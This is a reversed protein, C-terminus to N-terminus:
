NKFRTLVLLNNQKQGNQWAVIAQELASKLKLLTKRKNINMKVGDLKESYVLLNQNNYFYVTNHLPTNKNGQVVWYGLPSICKARAKQAQASASFSAAFFLVILLSYLHKKM